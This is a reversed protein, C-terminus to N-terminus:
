YTHTIQMVHRLKNTLKTTLFVLKTPSKLLIGCNTNYALKYPFTKRRCASWAKAGTVGSVHSPTHDYSAALVARRLFIEALRIRERRNGVKDEQMQEGGSM